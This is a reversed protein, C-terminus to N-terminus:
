FSLKQPIKELSYFVKYISRSKFFAIGCYLYQIFNASTRCYLVYKYLPVLLFIIDIKTKEM